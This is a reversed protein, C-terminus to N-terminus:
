RPWWRGDRWGRCGQKFHRPTGVRAAGRGETCRRSPCRGSPGGVRAYLSLFGWVSHSGRLPCTLVRSLPLPEKVAVPIVATSSASRPGSWGAAGLGRASVLESEVLQPLSSELFDRRSVRRSAGTSVEPTAFQCAMADPVDNDAPQTPDEHGRVGGDRAGAEDPGQEHCKHSDAADELDVVTNAFYQPLDQQASSPVHIADAAGVAPLVPASHLWVLADTARPSERGYKESDSGGSDM